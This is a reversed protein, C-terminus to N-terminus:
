PKFLERLTPYITVYRQYLSEYTAAVDARPTFTRETRAMKTAATALDPHVGVACAALM